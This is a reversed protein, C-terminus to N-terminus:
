VRPIRLSVGVLVIDTVASNAIKADQLVQSVRDMMSKFIKNLREFVDRTISDMFDHGEYHRM